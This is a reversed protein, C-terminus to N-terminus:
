VLLLFSCNFPLYTWTFVKWASVISPCSFPMESIFMRSFVCCHRCVQKLSSNGVQNICTSAAKHSLTSNSPSSLTPFHRFILFCAVCYGNLLIENIGVVPPPSSSPSGTLRFHSLRFELVNTFYLSSCASAALM